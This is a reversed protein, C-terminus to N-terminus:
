FLGRSRGNKKYVCFQGSNSSGRLFFFLYIKLPIDYLYKKTHPGLTNSKQWSKARPSLVYTTRAPIPSPTANVCMGGIDIHLCTRTKKIKFLVKRSKVFLIFVKFIVKTEPARGMRSECALQLYCSIEPALFNSPHSTLCAEWKWPGSSLM